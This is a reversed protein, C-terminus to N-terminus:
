TRKAFPAMSILTLAYWPREDEVLAMHPIACSDDSPAYYSDGSQVRRCIDAYPAGLVQIRSLISAVSGYTGAPHCAM